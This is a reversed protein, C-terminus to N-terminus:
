RLVAWLRVEHVKFGHGPLPQEVVIRIRDALVPAPLVVRWVFTKPSFIQERFIRISPQQHVTRLPEDGVGVAIQFSLPVDNLHTPNAIEIAVVRRTHALGLEFWQGRQQQDPGPWYSRPQGDVSKHAYRSREVGRARLQESPVLEAGGPLTPMSLLELTPDHSPLLSFVYDDGHQFARRWHKQDESLREPWDQRAPDLDGAHVVVHRAGLAELVRRAGDEPLHRSVREVLDTVPLVYSSQGNLSRHRALAMLYNHLARGADGRFREVGDYQPVAAYLDAEPQEALFQYVEPVEPAAWEARVPHPFCRLEYVTAVFLTGVIPLARRRPVRSLLWACGFGGLVVLAFTTMVAQRSVKRIGDFGPFYSYLYYYLGRVPEGRFELPFLGLFLLVAVAALGLYLGRQGAFPSPAGARALVVFGLAFAAAGALMSHALLSVAVSLLLLLAWRGLQLAAVRPSEARLWRWLPAGLSLLVFGVVVFGPFAIEEHAGRISGRHHLFSLTRNTEHVNAFFGLKGDYSAAFEPTRELSFADRVAFYPHVMLLAVGAAVAGGALLQLLRLRSPRERVILVLALLALLPILFMAYYLCTGIQLVFALWLGVVDRLKGGAISRHLMLVTLPIWQTAVLQIRGLEFMVYPCFAFAVGALLGAHANGSLRRVLLYTFFASLALSTILTLNYAWLPNGSVLYFPAFVLSLGFLNENFVISNPLPAFFYDDYLSLPGRGLLADVRGSMIMANTYADWYYAARLVHDAARPLLPWTMLVASFLSVAAAIATQFTTVRRAEAGAM